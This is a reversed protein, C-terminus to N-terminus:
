FIIFKEGFSGDAFLVESRSDFGISYSSWWDKDLDTNKSLKRSRFFCSGLKFDTNLNRLTPNLTYSIHLNVIKKHISTNSILCHGNFCIDSLFHHDVFTSSFNSDSKTINEINKSFEILKGRILGLLAM